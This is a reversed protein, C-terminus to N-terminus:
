FHFIYCFFASVHYTFVRSSTFSHIMDDSLPHRRVVSVLIFCLKKLYILSFFSHSTIKKFIVYIRPLFYNILGFIFYILLGTYFIYSTALRWLCMSTWLCFNFVYFASFIVIKTITEVSHKYHSLGVNWFRVKFDKTEIETAILRQEAVVWWRGHSLAGYPYPGTGEKIM